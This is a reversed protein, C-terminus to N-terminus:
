IKCWLKSSNRFTNIIGKKLDKDEWVLSIREKLIESFASDFNPCRHLSHESFLHADSTTQGLVQGKRWLFIDFVGIEWATKIRKCFYFFMSCCFYHLKFIIFGCSPFVPQKRHLEKYLWLESFDSIVTYNM